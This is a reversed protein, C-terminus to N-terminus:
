ESKIDPSTELEKKLFEYIDDQARSVKKIETRRIRNKQDKDLIRAKINDQFQLEMFTKLERQINKDYVPTAVEVRNDINRIMWDASSIYYKEEGGNCFIFIRSHELYKDVISIVEINDSLGEIGPVLSCISRVIMRIKVGAQSADYLKDIISRDVISNLKVVIYADKGAKANKIENKILRIITKRMYFPSVILHKYNFTKYNNELFAFVKDVENTIRKHATLLAHDSYLRASTENYNGTGICAYRVKKDQERRTILCLKAHVKLGPVGEIVKAGEEELRKIWYINAEEDFRAQLEM